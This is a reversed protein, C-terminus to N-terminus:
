LVAIGGRGDRDVLLREGDIGLMAAGVLVDALAIEHEPVAGRGLVSEGRAMERREVRQAPEGALLVPVELLRDLPVLLLALFLQDREPSNVREHCPAQVTDYRILCSSRRSSVSSM